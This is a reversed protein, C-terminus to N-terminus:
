AAPPATPPPGGGAPRGPRALLLALAALLVVGPVGDYLWKSGIWTWPPDGVGDHVPHTLASYLPLYAYAAAHAGVSFALSRFRGRAASLVLAFLFLGVFSPGTGRLDAANRAWAGLIELAGAAGPAVEPADSRRFAHLLAFVGAALVVASRPGLRRRFRDPLWGRFFAEELLAFPIAPLLYKPLRRVFKRWAWPSRDWEVAGALAHVGAVLTLLVAVTAVGLLLLRATRGAPGRLGFVDRPVDRWPRFAAALVAVLLGLALYRFVKPFEPDGGFSAIARHLPGSLLVAAALAALLGAVVALPRPAAATPADM